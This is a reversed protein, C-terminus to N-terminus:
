RPLDLDEIIAKIQAVQMFLPLMKAIDKRNQLTSREPIVITMDGVCTYAVTPAPLLGSDSVSLAEMVPMRMILRIRYNGTATRNKARKPKLMQASLTWYGIPIGSVRDEWNSWGNAHNGDWSFTHTVPSGLADAILINSGTSM